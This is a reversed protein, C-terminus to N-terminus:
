EEPELYDFMPVKSINIEETEENELLRNLEELDIKTKKILENAKTATLGKEEKLYAKEINQLQRIIRLAEERNNQDRIEAYVLLDDLIVDLLNKLLEIQKETAAVIRKGTSWFIKFGTIKRGKKLETYKIELETFENIESIAVDLIKKKFLGTNSQYSKKNEVSFLKM